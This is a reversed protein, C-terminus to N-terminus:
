CRSTTPSVLPPTRDKPRYPIREVFVGDFSHTTHDPFRFGPAPMFFSRRAEYISLHQQYSM